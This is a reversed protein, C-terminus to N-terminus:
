FVYRFGAGRSDGERAVDVNENELRDLKRNEKIHIRFDAENARMNM